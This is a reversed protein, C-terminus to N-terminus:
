LTGLTACLHGGASFGMIFVRNDAIKWDAANERVTKVAEALEMLATPFRATAVSYNLVFAHFGAALFRMAV